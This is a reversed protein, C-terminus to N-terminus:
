GPLSSIQVQTANLKSLIVENARVLSVRGASTVVNVLAVGGELVGTTGCGLSWSLNTVTFRPRLLFFLDIDTDCQCGMEIEFRKEVILIVSASSLTRTIPSEVRLCILSAVGDCVTFQIDPALAFSM